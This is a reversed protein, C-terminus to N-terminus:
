RQRILADSDPASNPAPAFIDDKAGPPISPTARWAVHGDFYLVNCGAYEKTVHNQPMDAVIPTDAPATSSASWQCRYDCRAGALRCDSPFHPASAKKRRDKEVDSCLFVRADPVLDPYLLALSYLPGRADFPPFGGYNDQYLRLACGIQHLNNMCYPRKVNERPTDAEHVGWVGLGALGGIVVCAAARSSERLTLWIVAAMLAMAVSAVGVWFLLLACAGLLRDTQFVVAALVALGFAAAGGFLCSAAAITLWRACKLRCLVSATKMEEAM